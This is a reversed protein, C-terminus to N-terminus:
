RCGGPSDHTGTVAAVHKGPHLEMLVCGMQWIDVKETIKTRLQRADLSFMAYPISHIILM